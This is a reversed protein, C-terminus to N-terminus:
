SFSDIQKVMGSFAVTVFVHRASQLVNVYGAFTYPDSFLYFQVPQQFHPAEPILHSVTAPSTAPLVDSVNANGSDKNSDGILVNTDSPRAESFCYRSCSKNKSRHQSINHQARKLSNEDWSACVPCPDNRSCNKVNEYVFSGRCGGCIHNDWDALRRGCVVKGARPRPSYKSTDADSESTSRSPKQKKKKCSSNTSLPSSSMM